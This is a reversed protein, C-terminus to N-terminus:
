RCHLRSVTVPFLLKHENWLDTKQENRSDKLKVLQLKIPGDLLFTRSLGKSLLIVNM